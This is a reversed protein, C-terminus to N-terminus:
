EGSNAGGPTLNQFSGAGHGRHREGDAEFPQARATARRGNDGARSDKCRIREQADARVATHRDDGLMDFHSLAGVGANSGHKGFLEIGVPSL